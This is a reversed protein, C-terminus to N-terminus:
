DKGPLLDRAGAGYERTIVSRRKQMPGSSRSM